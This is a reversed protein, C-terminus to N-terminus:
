RPVQLLAEIAAALQPATFPKKLVGDAGLKSAMDLFDCHAASGGGSIALIRARRGAHNVQRLTEFGDMDPMFLDLVIVDPMVQDLGAVAELGNSALSVRHGASELYLKLTKRILVDDDVVLIHVAAQTM